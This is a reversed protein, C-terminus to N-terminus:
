GHDVVAYSLVEVKLENLAGNLGASVLQRLGEPAAQIFQRVNLSVCLEDFPGLLDGCLDFALDGANLGDLIGKRGEDFSSVENLPVCTLLHVFLFVILCPVLFTQFLTLTNLM